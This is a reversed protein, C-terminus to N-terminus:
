ELGFGLGLGLGIKLEDDEGGGEELDRLFERNEGEAKAKLTRIAMARTGQATMMRSRPPVEITRAVRVSPRM